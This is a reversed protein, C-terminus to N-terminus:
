ARPDLASDYPAVWFFEGPEDYAYLLGTSGHSLPDSGTQRVQVLATSGDAAAVEAQGFGTDVRGTRIVCTQGLFDQRSPPPVDPGFVGRLPRVLVATATRAALVALVLVGAGSWGGLGARDLLVSGALSIFWAVSTFVTASVPFPIGLTGLASSGSDTDVSDHEAAGLLVLLWYGVTVALAFSFVAAPFGLAASVFEGM